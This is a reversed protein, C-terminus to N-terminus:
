SSPSPISRARTPIQITNASEYSPYSPYYVVYQTGEATEVHLTGAYAKQVCLAMGVAGALLVALVLAFVTRASKISVSRMIVEKRLSVEGYQLMSSCPRPPNDMWGREDQLM